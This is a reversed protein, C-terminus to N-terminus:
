LFLSVGFQNNRQCKQFDSDHKLNLTYGRDETQPLRETTRAAVHSSGVPSWTGTQSQHNRHSYECSSFSGPVTYSGESMPSLDERRQIACGSRQAAKTRLPQIRYRKHRLECERCYGSKTHTCARMDTCAYKCMHQTHVM